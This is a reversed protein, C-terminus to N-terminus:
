TCPLEEPKPSLPALARRAELAIWILIGPTLVIGDRLRLLVAIAATEVPAMGFSAGVAALGIEQVGVGAPVFFFASRLAFVIGELSLAQAVTLPGGIAQALLFIQLGGIIWAAMHLGLSVAFAPSRLLIAGRTALGILAAWWRGCAYRLTVAGLGIAVVAAVILVAPPAALAPLPIRLSSPALSVAALAYVGQAITEALIDATSVVLATGASMGFLTLVRIGAAEGLGPIAIPLAGVADRGWRSLFASPLTLDRSLVRLGLACISLSLVQGVVAISLAQRSFARSLSEGLLPAVGRWDILLLATLAAALGIVLRFWRNM